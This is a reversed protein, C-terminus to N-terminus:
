RPELVEPHGLKWFDQGAKIRAPDGCTESLFELPEVM